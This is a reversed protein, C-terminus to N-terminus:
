PASGADPHGRRIARRGAMARDARARWHPLASGLGIALAAALAIVSDGLEPKNTMLFVIGLLTAAGVQLATVLLPDHIRADLAEPLPGDPLQDAASAIAELRPGIVFPGLPAVLAVGAIAGEIWGLRLSWVSLAMDLGTGILLVAGGIGVAGVVSVNERGIRRGAVLPGVIARVQEVRTARRLAATAFLLTGYAVFLSIAGTVHLFLEITYWHM